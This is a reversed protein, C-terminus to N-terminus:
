PKYVVGGFVPPKRVGIKVSGLDFDGEKYQWGSMHTVNWDGDERLLVFRRDNFGKCQPGEGPDGMGVGGIVEYRLEVELRDEERSLEEARTIAAMRPRTCLAGNEVAWEEYHLRIKREVGSDLGHVLGKGGCGSLTLASLLAAAAYMSAGKGVGKGTSAM